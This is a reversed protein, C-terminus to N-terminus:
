GATSNNSITAGSHTRLGLKGIKFSIIESPLVNSSSSGQRGLRPPGKDEADLNTSSPYGHTIGQDALLTPTGRRSKHQPQRGSTKNPGSHRAMEGQFRLWLRGIPSLRGMPENFVGVSIMM